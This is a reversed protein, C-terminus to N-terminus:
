GGHTINFGEDVQAVPVVDDWGEQFILSRSTEEGNSFGGEWSPNTIGDDESESQQEADDGRQNDVDVLVEPFLSFDGALMELLYLTTPLSQRSVSDHISTTTQSKFMKENLSSV